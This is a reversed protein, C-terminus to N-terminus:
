RTDDSALGVGQTGDGDRTVVVSVGVITVVAAAIAILILRRKRPPRREDEDPPPEIRRGIPVPEDTILDIVDLADDEPEGRADKAM